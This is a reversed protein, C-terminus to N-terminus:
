SAGGPGRLVPRWHTPPLDRSRSKLSADARDWFPRPCKAYADSNWWACSTAGPYTPPWVIVPTGDRPATKIPQWDDAM